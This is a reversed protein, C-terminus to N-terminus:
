LGTSRPIRARAWAPCCPAIGASTNTMGTTSAKNRLEGGRTMADVSQAGPVFARIFVAGDMAHAGLVAFPDDHRGAVIAEIVGATVTAAM